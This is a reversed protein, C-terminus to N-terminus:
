ILLGYFDGCFYMKVLVWPLLFLCSGRSSTYLLAAQFCVTNIGVLNEDMQVQVGVASDPNVNAMALLDTSRVFFNGFFTHLSLGVFRKCDSYIYIYLNKEQCRNRTVALDALRTLIKNGTKTNTAVIENSCGAPKGCLYASKQWFYPTPHRSQDM